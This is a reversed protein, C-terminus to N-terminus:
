EFSITRINSAEDMGDAVLSRDVPSLTYLLELLEGVHKKEEEMISHIVAKTFRDLVTSYIQDYQSIAELESAIMFRIATDVCTPQPDM